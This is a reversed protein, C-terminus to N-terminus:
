RARIIAVLEPNVETAPAYERAHESIQKLEVRALEQAFLDSIGGPLKPSCCGRRKRQPRTLTKYALWEMRQPSTAQFGYNVVEIGAALKAKVTATAADFKALLEERSESNM